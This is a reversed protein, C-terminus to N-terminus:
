AIRPVEGSRGRRWARDRVVYGWGLLNGLGCLIGGLGREGVGGTWNFLTQGLLAWACATASLEHHKRVVYVRNRVQWIGFRLEAALPRRRIGHRARAAPAITLTYGRRARLSYEVDELYGYGTFWEDFRFRDVVQRRWVTAGGPLWDVQRPASAPRISANYGSRLMRGSDRSELGFLEKFWLGRGPNAPFLSFAAGGVRDGAHAWFDHMAGLAGPELELDDDLFGVLTIHPALAAIGANKQRTLSPPRLRLYTVALRPFQRVVGEVPSGSGDVVVVQDPPAAQAEISALLRRLEQPRDKTPIILGLRAM